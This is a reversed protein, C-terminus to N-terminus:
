AASRALGRASRSTARQLEENPPQDNVTAFAAPQEQRRRSVVFEFVQALLQREIRSPTFQRVVSAFRTCDAPNSRREM